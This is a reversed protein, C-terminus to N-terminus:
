PKRGAITALWKGFARLRTGTDRWPSPVKNTMILVALARATPVDPCEAAELRQMLIVNARRALAMNAMEAKDKKWADAYVYLRDRLLRYNSGGTLLRDAVERLEDPGNM